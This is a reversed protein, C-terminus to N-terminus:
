GGAKRRFQRKAGERGHADHIKSEASGNGGVGAAHHEQKRALAERFRAKVDSAGPQAGSNTNDAAMPCGNCLGLCSVLCKEATRLLDPSREGSLM